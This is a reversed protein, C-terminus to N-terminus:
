GRYEPRCIEGLRVLEYAKEMEAGLDRDDDDLFSIERRLARYAYGTGKGTPPKGRLDAAQACHMLEIGLLRYLLDAIRRTKQMVLPTNCGHDETENATPMYDLSVPNSLLRVEADLAVITKQIVSFAIVDRRPRLFRPLNGFHENDMRMIRNCILRSLHALAIGAAEFAVALGTVIFNDTSIMDGEPILVMPCDDSSNMYQLLDDRAHSLTDRVAGHIACSSKWSLAGSLSENPSNWLESGELCDRTFALSDHQGKLPRRRGSRPDLFMPNCGQAECGMAYAIDATKLLTEFEAALLAAKGVAFANSSVLSLGDKPGLVVPKLGSDELARAAPVLEGRYEATGEGILALGIYAMNALDSMGVSGREPVRPHIGLNLMEAILRVIAPQIGSVGNLLGNLRILLAARVTERDAFPPVGASHSRLIRENFTRYEEPSIRNDKNAGVGTNLGYIPKEGDILGLLVARAAEVEAFSRPSVQVRAGHRAVSVVESIALDRGTLVIAESKASTEAEKNM